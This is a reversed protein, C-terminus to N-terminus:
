DNKYAKELANGKAVKPHGKPACIRVALPVGNKSYRSDAGLGM